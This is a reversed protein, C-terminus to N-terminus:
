FMRRLYSNSIRCKEGCWWHISGNQVISGISGEGDEIDVIWGYSMESVKSKMAPAASEAAALAQLETPFGKPMNPAHSFDVQEYTKM